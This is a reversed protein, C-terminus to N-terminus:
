WLEYAVAGDTTHPLEGGRRASMVLKSVDVIHWHPLLWKLGYQDLEEREHPQVDRELIAARECFQHKM